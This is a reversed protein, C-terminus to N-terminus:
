EPLVAGLLRAQKVYLRLDPGERMVKFEVDVEYRRGEGAGAPQNLLGHAGIVLPVLELLVYQMELDAVFVRGFSSRSRLSQSGDPRVLISEPVSGPAPNAVSRDGPQANVLVATGREGSRTLAVGNAVEGRFAENILVAMGVGAQPIGFFEREEFAERSWLSAFVALLKSELEGDGHRIEFGKSVYLGAGNFDPLDECNTSSRLRVRKSPFCRGFLRRLGSRTAPHLRARRIARRIAGLREGRQDPSLDQKDRELSRIQEAAGSSRVVQLYHWFPLAFGPRVAGPWERLIRAYNAAKAGVARSSLARADSKRLDVIARVSGDLEPPVVAAPRHAKWYAEARQRDIPQVLLKKPGCEMRVLRGVLEEAGPLDGLTGLSVNVTGRNRALLNVHSLPTQPVLTIIGAVPPVRRPLRDFVAIDRPGFCAGSREGRALRLTGVATGPNLVEVRKGGAREILQSLTLHPYGARQLAGAIRENPKVKPSRALVALGRAPRGTARGIEASLAELLRSFTRAMEEDSDEHEYDEIRVAWTHLRGGISVPRQRLDYLFFPVHDRRDPDRVSQKFQRFTWGTGLGRSVFEAHGPYEVPDYLHIRPEDTRWGSATGTWTPVSGYSLFRYRGAAYVEAADEARASSAACVVISLIAM